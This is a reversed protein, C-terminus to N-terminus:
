WNLINDEVVRRRVREAAGSAGERDAAALARDAEEKDSSNSVLRRRDLV